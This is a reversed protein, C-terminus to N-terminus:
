ERLVYLNYEIRRSNVRRMFNISSSTRRIMKFVRGGSSGFEPIMYYSQRKCYWIERQDTHGEVQQEHVNVPPVLPFCTRKELAWVTPLRSFGFVFFFFWVVPVIIIKEIRYSNEVCRRRLKIKWHIMSTYYSYEYGKELSHRRQSESGCRTTEGPLLLISEMLAYSM